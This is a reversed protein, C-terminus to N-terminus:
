RRKTVLALFARPSDYLRHDGRRWVILWALGFGLLVLTSPEPTPTGLVDFAPAFDLGIPAFWGSGDDRNIVCAGCMVPGENWQDYTDMAAPLVEIWYQQGKNVLISGPLIVTPVFTDLRYPLGTVSWSSILDGPLGGMGSHLEVTAADVYPTPDGVVNGGHFALGLDIQTLIYNDSPTFGVAVAQYAGFETKTAFIAGVDVTQGPGFTSYITDCSAPAPFSLLILIPLILIQIIKM